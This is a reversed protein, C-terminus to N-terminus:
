GLNIVQVCAALDAVHVPGRLTIPHRAASSSTSHLSLSANAGAQKLMEEVRTQTSSGTAQVQTKYEIFADPLNNKWATQVKKAQAGDLNLSFSCRNAGALSPTGTASVGEVLVLTVAGELWDPSLLEPVPIAAPPTRPPAAAALRAQLGALLAAREAETLNLDATLSCQGGAVEGHRKYLLLNIEPQGQADLAVRPRSPLAYFRSPSASDTYVAVAPLGPLTFRNAPNLM